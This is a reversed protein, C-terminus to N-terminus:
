KAKALATGVWPKPDISARNKRFEMFLEPTGRAPMIGLPEGAKVSTGAQTFVDGLGSMVIFYGDGVNMIIVNDNNFLGAYEVRGPFPAIVQARVQTSLTIGKATGSGPLRAGFRRTLKGFVPLPLEGRADAFRLSGPPVYVPAASRRKDPKLRPRPNPNSASPKLRPTIDAANDEFSAILERLTSAEAALRSAEKIKNARETDLKKNLVEKESLTTEIGKLRADVERANSAIDSRRESMKSRTIELAALREKLIDSRSQLELSVARLLLAARAADATNGPSVLLAPPPNREIRQLAALTDALARRDSFILALLEKEERELQKLRTSATNQAKEYGRSQASATVLDDQLTDIQGTLQKQRVTLQKAAAEAQKQRATIDDLQEPDTSQAFSVTPLSLAFLLTFLTRKM